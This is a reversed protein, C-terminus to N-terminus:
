SVFLDLRQNNRVLLLILELRLLIL